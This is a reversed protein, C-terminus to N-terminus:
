ECVPGSGRFLLALHTFAFSINVSALQVTGEETGSARETQVTNLETMKPGLGANFSLYSPSKRWGHRLGDFFGSRLMM